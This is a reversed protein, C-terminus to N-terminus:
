FWIDTEDKFAQVMNNVISLFLKVGGRENQLELDTRINRTKKATRM